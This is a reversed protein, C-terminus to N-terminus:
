TRPEFVRPAAPVLAVFEEVLAAPLERFGMSACLFAKGGSLVVDGVCMSRVRLDTPIENGEVVNMERFAVELDDLALRAVHAYSATGAFEEVSEPAFRLKNTYFVDLM